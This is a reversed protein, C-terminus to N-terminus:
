LVYRYIHKPPRDEYHALGSGLADKVRQAFPKLKKVGNKDTYFTRITKDHYQRDGFQIVRSKATMGIHEFNSAKYITGVHDYHADAYSIVVKFETNQKLWRLSRGIFYSETNKPTDDICCLRRLEVVDSESEGYKKWANAMGFAGYIMGGILTDKDYLGFCQAIRIGNVNGSYHHTEIFDRVTAIDTPVVNFDKVRGMDYNDMTPNRINNRDM